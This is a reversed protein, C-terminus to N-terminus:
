FKFRNIAEHLEQVIKNLGEAHEAVKNMTYDLQEVSSNVEETTAASNQSVASITGMTDVVNARVANMGQNLEEVEKIQAELDEINKLIEAFVAQTDMITKQQENQIGETEKLAKDVMDSSNHVEALIAKIEETSKNSEDALKRIEDAVVAFGRGAEGARAAEISANLSLLNTQSTIDAIADSIYDIKDLAKLMDVMTVVSIEANKKAKESSENLNGLIENGKRSLEKTEKSHRGVSNIKETSRELSEALDEVKGTADQTASSQEIAGETVSNIAMTVQSSIHKTEDVVLTVDNAVKTIVDSKDSVERILVSLDESMRNFNREMEGFEDKRKAELRKTLDGAALTASTDNVKRLEKSIQHSILVAAMVSIALALFIALNSRRVVKALAASTEEDSLFGILYWETIPDKILSIYYNKGFVKAKTSAKAYGIVTGDEATDASAEAKKRLGEFDFFAAVNGSIEKAKDNRVLTNGKEDVLITFGTNMLEITNVFDILANENVEMCVVGVYEGSTKIAQSLTFVKVGEDNTFPKTVYGFVDNRAPVGISNAYWDEYTKNVGEESIYEGTKKGDESVSMKAQIYYGSATSYYTRESYPIVKLASLLNDEINNIASESYNQDLKKFENRRTMLDVPLNLIRLYKGFEDMAVSLTQESSLNANEMMIKETNSRMMLVSILISVLVVIVFYITLSVGFRRKM